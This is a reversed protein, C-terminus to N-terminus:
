KQLKKSEYSAYAIGFFAVLASLVIKFNLKDKFIFYGLFLTVFLNLNIIGMAIGGGGNLALTNTVLYLSLLVAPIFAQYLKLSGSKGLLKNFQKNKAIYYYSLIIASIIGAIIVLVCLFMHKYEFEKPVSYKTGELFTNFSGVALASFIAYIEWPM